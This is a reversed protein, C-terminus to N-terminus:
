TFDDALLLSVEFDKISCLFIRQDFENDFTFLIQSIVVQLDVQVYNGPMESDKDQHNLAIDITEGNKLDEVLKKINGRLRQDVSDFHAAIRQREAEFSGSVEQDIEVKTEKSM